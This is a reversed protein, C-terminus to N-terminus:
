GDNQEGGLKKTNRLIWQEFDRLIASYAIVKGETVGGTDYHFSTNELVTKYQAFKKIAESIQSELYSIKTSLRAIEDFFYKEEIVTM